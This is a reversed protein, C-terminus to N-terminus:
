ADLARRDTLTVDDFMLGNSLNGNHPIALVQGGTEEEYQEMWDWLDEPDSSDYASFPDFQDAEPKGDRFIVSRIGVDQPDFGRALRVVPGVACSWQYVKAQALYLPNEGEIDRSSMDNGVTYGAIEMAPTLVMTLEPEPVNWRSDPRVAVPQGPAAVRHSASKPFIEPRQADYVLGYITPAGSERMRAARSMEYTVGCAWVEQSDLPSLMTPEAEPDELEAASCLPPCQGPVDALADIAGEVRGSAAVLWAEMGSYEPRDLSSLDYLQGGDILGLRPPESGSAFRCLSLDPLVPAEKRAM